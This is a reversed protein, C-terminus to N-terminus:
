MAGQTNPELAEVKTTVVGETTTVLDLGATGEALSPAANVARDREM